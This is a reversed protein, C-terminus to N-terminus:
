QSDNWLNHPMGQSDSREMNTYFFLSFGRNACDSRYIVNSSEFFNRCNLKCSQIQNACITVDMNNLLRVLLILRIVGCHSCVSHLSAKGSVTCCAHSARIGIYPRIDSKQLTYFLSTTHHFLQTVSERCGAIRAAFDTM